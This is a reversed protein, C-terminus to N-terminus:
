LLALVFATKGLVGNQAARKEIVLEASCPSCLRQKGWRAM